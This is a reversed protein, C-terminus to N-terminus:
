MDRITATNRGAAKSTYLAQDAVELLDYFSHERDMSIAVGISCRVGSDGPDTIRALSALIDDARRQALNRALGRAERSGASGAWAAGGAGSGVPMFAVFEDGGYRGLVDSDRFTESLATAVQRLLEDGALHGFEDNVQKFRDLDIMFMMGGGYRRMFLNIRQEAANRNLLGTLQCMEAQRRWWRASGMEDNADNAIGHIAIVDGADDVECAYDVHYWRLVDGGRLNCKLDTFGSIPHHRLGRLAALVKAASLPDISEPMTDLRERWKKLEIDRMTGDPLVAHIVLRDELLYYKFTVKRDFLLAETSSSEGEEVESKLIVLLYLQPEYTVDTTVRGVVSARVLNGFARYLCVDCDVAGGRRFCQQVSAVFRRRDRVCVAEVFSDHFRKGFSDLDFGLEFILEPSMFDVTLEDNLRCKVFGNPVIKELMNVSWEFDQVAQMTTQRSDSYDGSRCVTLSFILGRASDGVYRVCCEIWRGTRRVKAACMASGFERAEGTARWMTLRSEEDLEFLLDVKANGFELRELGCEEYFRDNVFISEVQNGCIFFFVMGALAENFLFSTQNDFAMLQELCSDGDVRRMAKKGTSNTAIFEEFESVPMPPAFFYGQMFHCGMNKLTEAQELTEVGEAIIPTDLGQLMRIISGLVVGGYEENVGANVFGRDLKVTDVPVNKLMNLSSLGSGFDDMEVVMGNARMDAIIACLRDAGEVFASETVEIHLGDEPLDYRRQVERMRELLGPQFMETRSINVSVAVPKGDAMSRWRSASRCAEEWMFLDLEHVKGCRELVPVFEDPSILGLDPHNWRALAEAGVVEGLAYDVQPQYWLQIQGDALAQDVSQEIIIRRTDRALDEETFLVLTSSPNSQANRHAISAYDLARQLDRCAYDPERLYYIGGILAVRNTVGIEAIMENAVNALEQHRAEAEEFEFGKSVCIFRDGGLRSVPLEGSLCDKIADAVCSLVRNGTQFGYKPNISRFSRIDIYWLALKDGPTAPLQAFARGFAALNMAGTVPDVGPAQTGVVMQSGLGKDKVGM